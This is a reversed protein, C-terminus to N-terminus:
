APRMELGLMDYRVKIFGSTDDTVVAEPRVNLVDQAMVGVYTVDDGIYRFSYLPIGIDLMEVFTINEKLRRDSFLSAMGAVIGVVSGIGSVATGVANYTASATDIGAVTKATGEASIDAQEATLYQAEETSYQGVQEQYMMAAEQDAQNTVGTATFAIHASNAMLGYSNAQEQYGAETVGGQYGITAKGLAAQANSSALLDLASGSAALGAGATGAEESGITSFAARQEQAEQINTSIETAGVNEVAYKQALKYNQQEILDQQGQLTAGEAALEEGAVGAQAGAVQFGAGEAGWQAGTAAYQDATAQGYSQAAQAAASFASGFTAGPFLSSVGPVSSNTVTDGGFGSPGGPM